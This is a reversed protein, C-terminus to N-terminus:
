EEAELWWRTSNCSQRSRLSYRRPGDSTEVEIIRDRFQRLRDGLARAPDKWGDGIDVELCDLMAAIEKAKRPENWDLNMDHVGGARSTIPVRRHMCRLWAIVVERIWETAEDEPRREKPTDLFGVVGAHEIIGSMVRAWREFSAKSKSGDPMGANVWSRIVTLAAAVLGPRNDKLWGKLDPIAFAESPRDEPNAERADMRIDVCRRYIENEIDPNNGTTVWTVRVPLSVMRSYGLIRAKYTEATLTAALAQSKLKTANDFFVVKGGDMLISTLTKEMEEEQQPPKTAPPASGLAPYLCAHVLLTAGTGAVPKNLYYMPAIDFLDRVYPELCMALANARDSEDEFPFDALPKLLLEVAAQVQEETPEAPVDVEIKAALYIQAAEDYGRTDLLRGDRTFIPVNVVEKLCPLTIEQSRAALMDKVVAAPANSPKWGDDGIPKFWTAARNLEYTFEPEELPQVHDRDIRAFAEGYAYVGPAGDVEYEALAAWAQRSTDIILGKDFIAQGERRRRIGLWVAVEDIWEKPLGLLKSMSTLGRLTRDDDLRQRAKTIIQEARRGTREDDGAESAVLELFNRAIEDSWGARVLAGALALAFEDRGGEAPYFRVFFTAAALLGARRNLEDGDVISPIPEWQDWWCLQEGNPHVSPSVMVHYPEGDRSTRLQLVTYAHPGALEHGDVKPLKFDIPKDIEARYIAHRMSGDSRHVTCRTRPLLAGAIRNSIDWDLDVDVHHEDIILGVNGTLDDLSYGRTAYGADRPQKGNKGSQLPILRYGLDILASLANKDSEEM